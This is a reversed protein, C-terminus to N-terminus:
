TASLWFAAGTIKIKDRRKWLDKTLLIQLKGYWLCSYEEEFDIGIEIRKDIELHCVYNIPQKRAPLSSLDNRYGVNTASTWWRAHLLREFEEFEARWTNLAIASPSLTFTTAAPKPWIVRFSNRYLHQEEARRCLEDTQFGRFFSGDRHIWPLVSNKLRWKGDASARGAVADGWEADREPTKKEAM